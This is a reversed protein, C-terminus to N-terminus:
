QKQGGSLQSPYAKEKDALGVVKLLERARKKAETDKVGAIKLSFCINELVNKQMLLNFHQFIMGIEKRMERLQRESLGSMRCGDIRVDGSTPHELYNICRIFTSKGAGSMGIIGFIDGKSIHLNVHNLGQVNGAKTHFEKSVDEFRIMDNKRGGKNRNGNYRCKETGDLVYFFLKNYTKGIVM